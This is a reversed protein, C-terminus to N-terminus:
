DFHEHWSRKILKAHKNVIELIEKLEDTRGTSILLKMDEATLGLEEAMKALKKNDM